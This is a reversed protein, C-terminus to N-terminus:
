LTYLYSNIRNRQKKIMPYAENILKGCQWCTRALPSNGTLQQLASVVQLNNTRCIPCVVSISITAKLKQPKIICRLM